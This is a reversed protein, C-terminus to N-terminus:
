RSRARTVRSLHERVDAANPDIALAREFEAAAAPLQGQLALIQGLLDHAAPDDPRLAV